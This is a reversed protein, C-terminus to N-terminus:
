YLYKELDSVTYTNTGEEDNTLQNKVYIQGTVSNIGFYQTAKGEGVLSYSVVNFPKLADSDTAEVNVFTKGLEQDERIKVNKNAEKFIPRKLNRDVTVTLVEVDTKAPTGSDSVELRLQFYIVIWLM